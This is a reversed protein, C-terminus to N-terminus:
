GDTDNGKPFNFKVDTFPTGRITVGSLVADFSGAAKVWGAPAQFLATDGITEGTEPNAVANLVLTEEKGGVTARIAISAASSRVFNEMESDLVYAQLMGSEPDLVLEVHYEDQGLEIPTGMHPPHHHHRGPVAVM